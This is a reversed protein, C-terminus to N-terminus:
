HGQVGVQVLETGVRVLVRQMRRYNVWFPHLRPYFFVLYEGMVSVINGQIPVTKPLLSLNVDSIFLLLLLFLFVGYEEGVVLFVNGNLFVVFIFYVRLDLFM